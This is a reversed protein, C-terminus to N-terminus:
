RDEIRSLITEARKALPTGAHAESVRALIARAEGGRGGESLVIGLNISAVPNDPDEAIVRRLLRESEAPNGGMYAVLARLVDLRWDAVAGLRPHGAIDRAADEQGTAIYAGILWCALDASSDGSQFSQRLHELSLSLSDSVPVFVSRYVPSTADLSGEGGPLVFPGRASATEVAGRVPSLLARGLPPGTEPGGGERPLWVLLVVVAAVAAAAALGWRPYKRLREGRAGAPASERGPRRPPPPSVAKAAAVLDAPPAFAAEDDAWLALVTAADRYSELCWECSRLHASARKRDEGALSGELLRM